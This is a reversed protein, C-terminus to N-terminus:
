GKENQAVRSVAIRGTLPHFRVRYHPYGTPASVGIHGSLVSGNPFFWFQRRGDGLPEGGEIGSIVVGPPLFVKKRGVIRYSRERSDLVLRQLRGEYIAKSRLSRAVAAVGLASRRVARGKLAKGMAPLVIASSLALLILVVLLELLSFGREEQRAEGAPLIAVTEMEEPLEM